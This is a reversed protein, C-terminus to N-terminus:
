AYSPWTSLPFWRIVLPNLTHALGHQLHLNSGSFLSFYIMSQYIQEICDYEDEFYAFCHQCRLRQAQGWLPVSCCAPNPSITTSHLKHPAFSQISSRKVREDFSNSFHQKLPCNSRMKFIHFLRRPKLCLKVAKAFRTLLTSLRLAGKHNRIM